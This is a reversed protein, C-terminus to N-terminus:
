RRDSTREVIISRAKPGEAGEGLAFRVTAGILRNTCVEDLNLIDNKHFFLEDRTADYQIFGYGRDDFFTRIRGRGGGSIKLIIESADVTKTIWKAHSLTRGHCLSQKDYHEHTPIGSAVCFSYDFEYISRGEDGGFEAIRLISDQQTKSLFPRLVAKAQIKSRFRYTGGNKCKVALENVQGREIDSHRKLLEKGSRELVETVVNRSVFPSKPMKQAAASMARNSLSLLRRVIGGSGFCLQELANGVGEECQSIESYRSDRTENHIGIFNKLEREDGLRQASRLYRKLITMCLAKYRSYSKKDRLQYDLSIRTGYRSEQLTDSYHEPYVGLKYHINKNSRLNNVLNDYYSRDDGRTAFFSSQLSGVEDLLLLVNDCYPRLAEHYLNTLNSISVRQSSEITETYSGSYEALVDLFKRAKLKSGVKYARQTQEIVKDASLETFRADQGYLGADTLKDRWTKFRGFWTRQRVYDEITHGTRLLNRIVLLILERNIEVPDSIDSLESLNVLVPIVPTRGKETLDLIAQSFSYTEVARLCMTKGSGWRGRIINNVNYSFIELTSPQDSVFLDLVESEELDEASIYVFPNKPLGWHELFYNEQPTTPQSTM